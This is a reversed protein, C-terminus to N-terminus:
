LLGDPMPKSPAKEEATKQKKPEPAKIDTGKKLGFASAIDNSFSSASVAENAMAADLSMMGNQPQQVRFWDEVKSMGDKLSMYIKRLQIVQAPLIADVHRQIKAEIMSQSVKLSAFAQVLARIKEPDTNADDNKLTMDCQELCEDIIDSPIIKELCARVARSAYNAVLERIDRAETLLIEKGQSKRYHRIVEERPFESNTELDIAYAEIKTFDVGQEIIRFGSKINGWIAAMAEVLRISPGEVNTGGRVYCYTAQEALRKRMCANRMKDLCKVIDRPHALAIQMSALMKTVEGATQITNGASTPAVAMPNNEFGFGGRTQADVRMVENAM